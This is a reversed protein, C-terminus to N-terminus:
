PDVIGAACVHAGNSRSHDLEIASRRSKDRVGRSFRPAPRLPCLFLYSLTFTAPAPFTIEHSRHSDVQDGLPYVYSGPAGSVSTRRSYRCIGAVNTHGSGIDWGHNGHNIADRSNETEVSRQLQTILQMNQRASYGPSSGRNVPPLTCPSIYKSVPQATDHLQFSFYFSRLHVGRTHKQM